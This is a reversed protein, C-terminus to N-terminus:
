SEASQENKEVKHMWDVPFHYPWDKRAPGTIVYLVNGRDLVRKHVGCVHITRSTTPKGYSREEAEVEYKAAKECPEHGRWMGSYVGAECKEKM